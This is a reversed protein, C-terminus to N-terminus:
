RLGEEEVGNVRLDEMSGIFFVKSRGMVLIYWFLKSWRVKCVDKELVIRKRLSDGRGEGKLFYRNVM